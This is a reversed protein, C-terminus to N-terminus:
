DRFHPWSRVPKRCRPCQANLYFELDSAVYQCKVPAVAQQALQSERRRRAGTAKVIRAMKADTLSPSNPKWSM